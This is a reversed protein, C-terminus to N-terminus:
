TREARVVNVQINEGLEQATQIIIKKPLFATSDVFSKKGVYRKKCRIKTNKFTPSLEDKILQEVLTKSVRDVTIQTRPTDEVMVPEVRRLHFARRDGIRLQSREHRGLYRFPCKAYLTTDFEMQLEIVLFDVSRSSVTGWVLSKERHKYKNVEELCATTSLNKNLIRKITNFGRLTALDIPTQVPGNASDHYAVAFLQGESFIVVVNKQHWRSLMSSFTREIETIVQGRTLGYKNVFINIIQHYSTEM